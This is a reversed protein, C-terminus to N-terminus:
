NFWSPLQSPAVPRWIRAREDLKRIAHAALHRAVTVGGLKAKRREDPTVSYRLALRYWFYSEADDKTVSVGHQYAMALSFQAPAHGQDAANRFLEIAKRADQAVGRGEYYMLALSYQANRDHKDVAKLMWKLALADDQITGAGLAYMFGIRAQALVHGQEAARLYWAFAEKEGSADDLGQECLLGYNYQATANGDKAASYILRAAMDHNKGVGRGHLYMLGVNLRADLEGQASSKQFWEFAKADDRSIDSFGDLYMLGLKNQAEADGEEAQKRFWRAAMANINMSRPETLTALHGIRMPKAVLFSEYYLRLFSFNAVGSENVNLSYKMLLYHEPCPHRDHAAITCEHPPLIYDPALFSRYDLYQVFWRGRDSRQEINLPVSFEMPGYLRNQVTLEWFPPEANLGIYMDRYATKGSGLISMNDRIQTLVSQRILYDYMYAKGQQLGSVLCLTVISSVILVRINPSPIKALAISGAIVCGVGSVYFLRSNFEGPAPYRSALVYPAAGFLLLVLSIFLLVKTNKNTIQQESAPMLRIFTITVLALLAMFPWDLPQQLVSLANEVHFSIAKPLYLVYESIGYFIRDVDFDLRNYGEYYGSPKFMFYAAIMCVGAIAWYPLLSRATKRFDGRCIGGHVMLRFPELMILTPLGFSLIQCVPAVVLRKIQSTKGPAGMYVSLLWLFMFVDYFYHSVTGRNFYFPSLLYFVFTLFAPIRGTGLLCMLRWILFANAYHFALSIVTTPFTAHAGFIRYPFDLFPWFAPHGVQNLYHFLAETGDVRYTWYWVLDDWIYDPSMLPAILTALVFLVFVVLHRAHWRKNDTPVPFMSIKRALQM